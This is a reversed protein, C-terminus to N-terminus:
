GGEAMRRVLERLIDREAHARAVLWGGDRPLVLETRGDEVPTLASTSLGAPLHVLELTDGDAMRQLVRVAGPLGEADLPTMSLVPLGPVMLSGSRRAPTRTLDSVAADLRVAGEAVPADPRSAAPTVATLTGQTPAEARGARGRGLSDLLLPPAAAVEARSAASVAAKAEAVTRPFALTDLGAEPIAVAVPDGLLRSASPLLPETPRPIPAGEAEAPAPAQAARERDDVRAGEELKRRAAVDGAAEKAAAAEPAPEAGRQEDAAGPQEADAFAAPTESRRAGQAAAGAPTDDAEVAEAEEVAAAGSRNLGERGFDPISADRLMWGLGLALVVSAAWGYRYVRPMARETRGRAEARARLEEFAPPELVEPVAAGLIETAEKRIAREEELRARCVECAALHERVRAAEAAPLADLAGDLWAHLTGEDVHSM